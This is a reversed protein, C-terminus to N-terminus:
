IFLKTFKYGVVIFLVYVFISLYLSIMDILESVDITTSSTSSSTTSTSTTGTGFLSTYTPNASLDTIDDDTLAISWISLDDIEGDFYNSNGPWRGVVLDKNSSNTISGITSTGQSVNDLFLEATSESVDIRFVIHEWTDQTLQISWFPTRQTSGDHHFFYIGNDGLLIRYANDGSSGYRNIIDDNSSNPDADHHKVFFSITMDGTIDLDDSYDVTTDLYESNSDDFVASNSNVGTGFTVTNNDVFDFNGHSDYRVGSEEDFEWWSVLDGSTADFANGIQPVFIVYAVTLLIIHIKM